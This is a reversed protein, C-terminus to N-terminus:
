ATILSRCDTLGFQNRGCNSYYVFWEKQEQEELAAWYALVKAKEGWLFRGVKVSCTGRTTPEAKTEVVRLGSQPLTGLPVNQCRDPPLALDYELFLPPLPYILCWHEWTQLVLYLYPTHVHMILSCQARQQATHRHTSDLRPRVYVTVLVSFHLPFAFRFQQILLIPLELNRSTLNEHHFVVLQQPLLSCKVLIAGQPLYGHSDLGSSSFNWTLKM